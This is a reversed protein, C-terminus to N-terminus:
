VERLKPLMERAIQGRLYALALDFQYDINVEGDDRLDIDKIIRHVHSATVREDELQVATVIGDEYVLTISTRKAM